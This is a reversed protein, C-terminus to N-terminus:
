IGKRVSIVSKDEKLVEQAVEYAHELDYASVRIKVIVEVEFTNFDSM